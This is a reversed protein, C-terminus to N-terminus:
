EVAKARPRCVNWMSRVIAAEAARQGAWGTIRARGTELGRYTELFLEIAARTNQPLDDISEILSYRPDRRDFPVCIITQDPGAEDEMMLMGVPRSRVITGPFVPAPVLVLAAAPDGDDTLTGPVFGYVSPCSTPNFLFRDAILAGSEGDVEYKVGSGQAIQVIVNIDFPPNRGTQVKSVDM